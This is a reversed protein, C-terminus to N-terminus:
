RDSRMINIVMIAGMFTSFAFLAIPFAPYGFLRLSSDSNMMNSAGVIMAAVILGATIRNAVKQIGQILAKEDIADVHVRLKNSAVLEMMENIRRPAQALLDKLELAGALLSGAKLSDKARRRALRNLNRRISENPDFDPALALGVRDLNLLAKGLMSIERPISVGRGSCARMISMVVSGFQLREMTAGQARGVVDTIDAAFAKRDLNPDVDGSIRLAAEAVRDGENDAIAALLHFLNDRMKESVRGVMGLDLLAIRKDRTLLLNGPHPDAHYFGDILIQQLYARFLSEALRAGDIETKVVGSIETIKVGDIWEMTLVKPSCFSEIPMPVVLSQFEELSQGLHRLNQAELLYDLEDMLTRRFQDVIGTFRYRRGLETRAEAYEAIQQLAELDALIAARIHPRQVKVVVERGDAMRARHAQGISASALPREEFSAFAKSIRVKLDRELTERVEPFPVPEVDDQLRELALLYSAPLLDGRTSLLQGFKVFTPGMKELAAAFAEPDKSPAAGAETEDVEALFDTQALIAPKAHRVFLMAIDKYRSLHKPSLKM